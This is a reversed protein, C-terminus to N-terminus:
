ESRERSQTAREVEDLLTRVDALLTPLSDHVATWVQEHDLSDYNHALRNRFDVASRLGSIRQATAPDGDELQRLAAGIILFGREVIYRLGLDSLYTDLTVGATRERIVEGAVVIDSLWKSSKPPM